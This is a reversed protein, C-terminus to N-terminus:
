TLNFNGLCEGLCETQRNVIKTQFISDSFEKRIAVYHTKQVSEIGASPSFPPFLLPISRGVFVVMRQVDRVSILIKSDKTHNFPQAPKPWTMM